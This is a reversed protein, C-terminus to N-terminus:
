VLRLVRARCSARGIEDGYGVTTITVITYWFADFFNAIEPNARHEVEFMLYMLIVLIIGLAFVLSIFPDSFFRRFFSHKRKQKKSKDM